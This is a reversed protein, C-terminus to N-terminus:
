SADHFIVGLTYRDGSRVRSVGHRVNVRYYGRSGKVPRIRTTFIIMEGQAPLIAEAASQARPRQEVLVFEGGTYDVGPRSLFIAAQLPFYVEGYLDQHLCNYGGETYRLMLPTPRTQGRRACANLLAEISEPFRTRDGLWEMWQNAIPALPPYLLTRLQEVIAPLPRAFYKYDGEGFRYRAMDIRSRFQEDRPYSEILARCEDPILLPPTKAYGYASLSNAIAPWDLAQVRSAISSPM